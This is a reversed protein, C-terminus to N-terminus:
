ATTRASTVSPERSDAPPRGAVPVEPPTARPLGLEQMAQEYCDHLVALRDILRRVQEEPTRPPVPEALLHRFLLRVRHHRAAWQSEPGTPPREIATLFRATVVQHLRASDAGRGASRAPHRGVLRGAGQWRSRRGGPPVVALGIARGLLPVLLPRDTDSLLDNADRLVAALEPDVCAPADSFHEGALLSTYEMFCAGRSPDKHKGRGLVPMSAPASASQATGSM